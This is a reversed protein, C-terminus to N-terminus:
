WHCTSCNTMQFESLIPYTDDGVTVQRADKGPPVWGVANAQRTVKAKESPSPTWTMDYLREQPRIHKEPNRHCDVCWAMSLTKEKWTLPMADIQGHCSVCGVGKKLHISHNFYAFDPLDHVRAWQVPRGTQFSERVPALLPSDTWIQSHCTMCTQTSPLGAFAAKDVSSHCYRCDIGDDGVHHKHSFPVPQELPIRRNIAYSMNFAYTGVGLSPVALLAGVISLKSITNTSPHFINAV